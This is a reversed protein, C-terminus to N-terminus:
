DRYITITDSEGCAPCEVEVTADDSGVTASLIPADVDEGCHSCNIRVTDPM